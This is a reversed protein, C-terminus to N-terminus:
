RALVPMADIEDSIVHHAIGRPYDPLFANETLM